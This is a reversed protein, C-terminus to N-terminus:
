DGNTFTVNKISLTREASTDAKKNMAGSCTKEFYTILIDERVTGM